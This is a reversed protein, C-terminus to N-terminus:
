KRKGTMSSFAESVKGGAKDQINWQGGLSYFSPTYRYEGALDNALLPVLRMLANLMAMMMIAMIASAFLERTIQREKEEPTAGVVAPQRIEAMKKINMAKFPLGQVFTKTCELMQQANAIGSPRINRIANGINNNPCASKYSEIYARPSADLTSPTSAGSEGHIAGINASRDLLLDNVAIYANISFGPADVSNGAIVRYISTPGNFLVVQMTAVSFTIFVILIVPQLITSIILRVWKDFYQKTNQFLVLPIFLPGVILLFAMTIFSALFAFLTRVLFFLMSYIFLFGIMGIVFGLSSSKMLEFFVAILGRQMMDGSIKNNFGQFNSATIQSIPLGFISDLVCDFRGWVSTIGNRLCVQSNMEPSLTFDFFSDALGDVAANLWDHLMGLNSVFYWVFGIKILLVFTDRGVKEVSGTALLVGYITVALLVLANIAKKLTAYTGTSSYFFHDASNNLTQRICGVIRNALGPFCDCNSVITGTTPAVGPPCQVGGQAAIATSNSPPSPPPVQAHAISGYVLCFMVCLSGLQKIMPAENASSIRAVM